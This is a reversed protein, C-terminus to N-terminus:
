SVIWILVGIAIAFLILFLLSLKNKKLYALFGHEESGTKAMAEHAADVNGKQSIPSSASSGMRNALASAQSPKSTAPKIASPAPASATGKFSPQVSETRKPKEAVATQSSPMQRTYISATEPSNMKSNLVAERVSVKAGSKKVVPEVIEEKYPFVRYVEEDEYEHAMLKERYEELALTWEVSDFLEGKAFARVFMDKLAPTLADWIKDYGGLPIRENESDDVTYPFSHVEMEDRLMELGNRQAYPHQGCFLMSFVLIAISYDEDQPRRLFSVFSKGWLEPRTFEETGVPCPLDQYQISDIDILYLHEEDEIMANKLQIDGAIVGHLHLYDMIRLFSLTSDVVHLRTWSPFYKEMADPGDFARSITTGSAKKMLYGVPVHNRSFLLKYPWCVNDADLGLDRMKMLKYWRLPTIGGRHYVKAVWKSHQTCFVLGEAGTSILSTLTIQEEDDTYLIDGVSFYDDTAIFDCNGSIPNVSYAPESEMCETISKYFRIKGQNTVFIAAQSQANINRLRAFSTSNRGVFFCEDANGLHELFFDVTSGCKSARLLKAEVLRRLSKKVALAMDQENPNDAKLVCEHYAKFAKSVYVVIGQDIVYNILADVIQPNNLELLASYDIVLSRYDQLLEAFDAM